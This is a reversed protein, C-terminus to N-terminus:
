QGEGGKLSEYYALVEEQVMEPVDEKELMKIDILDICIKALPTLEM